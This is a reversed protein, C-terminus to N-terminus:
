RLFSFEALQRFSGLLSNARNWLGWILVPIVSVLRRLWLVTPPYIPVASLRWIHSLKNCCYYFVLITPISFYPKTWCRQFHNLFLFSLYVGPTQYPQRGLTEAATPLLVTYSCGQRKGILYCGHTMSLCPPLHINHSRFFLDKNKSLFGLM